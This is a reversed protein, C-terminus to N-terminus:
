AARRRRARREGATRRARARPAPSRRPERREIREALRGELDLLVVWTALCALVGVAAAGRGISELRCAAAILLATLAAVLGLAARLRRLRRAPSTTRDM